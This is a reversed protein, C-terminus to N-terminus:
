DKHSVTELEEEGLERGQCRKVEWPWGTIQMLQDLGGPLNYNAKWWKGGVLTCVAVAQHTCGRGAM